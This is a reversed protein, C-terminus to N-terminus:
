FTVNFGLTYVMTLPYTNGQSGNPTLPDIGQPLHDFTLLNQGSVYIRLNSMQMKGLISKPLTYGFTLNKVRLYSADFVYTSNLYSNNSAGSNPKLVPFRADPNEPTWSEELQWKTINGANYLPYVLAETFYVKNGASGQLAISLDFGKYNMNINAGFNVKPIRDGITVRDDANIVGDAKDVIGDNDTDITLQDKFRIDGPTLTGFQKPAADIEAQDRFLGISEYGYISNMPAGVELISSSSKIFDLGNLDTVENKVTGLNAGISYNFDNIEHKWELSLEVGSNCMSFVNATPASLGIVYPIPLTGLLDRTDRKYYELSGSLQGNFLGFDVGLNLTEGKEWTIGSNAMTGQAAGQLIEGNAFYSSGITILSAYPFNSNISQNGLQGWSGRLKLRNVFSSKSFFEEQSINWGGSVAPFYGWRSDPAFRSSGDRRLSLGLM